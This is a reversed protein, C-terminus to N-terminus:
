LNNIIGTEITYVGRNSTASGDGAADVVQLAYPSGSAPTVLIYFGPIENVGGPAAYNYWGNPTSTLSTNRGVSTVTTTPFDSIKLTAFSKSPAYLLKLTSGSPAQIVSNNTSTFHVDVGSFTATTDQDGNTLNVYVTGYNAPGLFPNGYRGNITYTAVSPVANVSLKSNASTPEPAASEKTCSAAAIAIVAVAAVSRFTNFFKNKM